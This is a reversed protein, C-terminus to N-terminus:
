YATLLFGTSDISPPTKQTQVSLKRRKGKEEPM